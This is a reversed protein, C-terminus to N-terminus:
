AHEYRCTSLPRRSCRCLMCCRKRMGMWVRHRETSSGQMRAVVQAAPTISHCHAAQEHQTSHLIRVPEPAQARQCLSTLVVSGGVEWAEAQMAAKWVAHCCRWSTTLCLVTIRLTLALCCAGTLTSSSINCVQNPAGQLGASLNFLPLACCIPFCAMFSYCACAALKHATCAGACPEKNSSHLSSTARGL